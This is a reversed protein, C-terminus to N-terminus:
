GAEGFLAAQVPHRTISRDKGAWFGGSVQAERVYAKCADAVPCAKCTRTMGVLRAISPEDDLWPLDVRGACAVADMWSVDPPRRHRTM